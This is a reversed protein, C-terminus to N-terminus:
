ASMVDFDANNFFRFWNKKYFKNLRATYNKLANLVDTINDVGYSMRISWGEYKLYGTPTLLEKIDEPVLKCHIDYKRLIDFYELLRAHYYIGSIKQSSLTKGDLELYAKDTNLEGYLGIACIFQLLKKRREKLLIYKAYPINSQIDISTLFSYIKKLAVSNNGAIKNQDPFEKFKINTSFRKFDKIETDKIENKLESLHKIGCYPEVFKLFDPNSIEKGTKNIFDERTQINQLSHITKLEDCPFLSCWTCNDFENEICCKRVKCSLYFVKREPDPISCGDCPRLKEPSLKIDLYKSWGASCENREESTKINDKYTPCISCNCGCRAIFNDM